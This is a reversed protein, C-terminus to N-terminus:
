ANKLAQELCVVDPMDRDKIGLSPVCYIKGGHRVKPM